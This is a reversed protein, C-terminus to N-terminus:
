FKLSFKLRVLKVTLMMKMSNQIRWLFKRPVCDLRFGKKIEKAAKLTFVNINDKGTASGNYEKLVTM